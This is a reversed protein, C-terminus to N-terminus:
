DAPTPLYPSDKCYDLVREMRALISTLPATERIARWRHVALRFRRLAKEDDMGKIVYDTVGLGVARVLLEDDDTGTYLVIASRGQCAGVVAKIADLGSPGDPLTLDLIILEPPQPAYQSRLVALIDKLSTAHYVQFDFCKAEALLHKIYEACTKNDEVLLTKVIERTM